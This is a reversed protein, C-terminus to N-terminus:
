HTFVLKYLEKDGQNLHNLHQIDDPTLAYTSNKDAPALHENETNQNQSVFPIEEANMLRQLSTLYDDDQMRETQLVLDFRNLRNLANEVNYTKNEINEEHGFWRCYCESACRWVKKETGRSGMFKTWEQLSLAKDDTRCKGQCKQKWRGEFWYSSISREIPDRLITIYVTHNNFIEDRVVHGEKVILQLDYKNAVRKLWDRITTGGSKRTHYFFITDYRNSHFQAAPLKGIFSTKKRTMGQSSGSPHHNSVNIPKEILAMHSWIVRIASFCLLINIAVIWGSKRPFIM